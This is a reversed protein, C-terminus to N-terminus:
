NQWNRIPKLHESAVILLGTLTFKPCTCSAYGFDCKQQRELRIGLSVDAILVFQVGNVAGEWEM